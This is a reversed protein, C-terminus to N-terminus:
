IGSTSFLELTEGTHLRKASRANRYEKIDIPVYLRPHESDVLKPPAEVKKDKPGLVFLVTSYRTKPEVCWVRHKVNCFRGNSWAKAIDGVNVVITGPVPDVPILEGSYKDVVQLGNVDEDDHLITVFSPDSHLFVGCSGVSELSFNYKNFRMQCNWGDFLDGALGFGEMLKQGILGALERIVKTYKLVIERQHPSADLRDFFDGPTSVEDISFGELYPNMANFRFYGNGGESIRRKVEEPLDFLTAVVTKMEALLDAPVGHNVIRFIGWEECANVIEEALGDVRQMDIVPVGKRAMLKLRNPHKLNVKNHHHVSIYIWFPHCIM